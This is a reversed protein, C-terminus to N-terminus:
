GGRDADLAARVMAVVHRPDRQVQLWTTRLVRNGAIVLDAERRRDREVCRRTRHYRHGDAELIVRQRPWFFDVTHWIGPGCGVPENVKPTPLNACRCMDLASEELESRTLTTGIVHEQLVARLMAVGRRGCARDLLEEVARLDFVGQVEAEDCARETQRRNTVAALGLLTLAVSACPIGDVVTRDQPKLQCCRYARVGAIARARDSPVTIEILAQSRERRIGRLAACSRHSLLAGPGCALVAAMWRGRVGLSRRGLAYVGPFVRHLWGARALGAIEHRTFGLDALQPRSVAGHQLAVLDELAARRQRAPAAVTRRPRDDVEIGM